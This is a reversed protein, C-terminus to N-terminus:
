KNIERPIVLGIKRIAPFYHGLGFWSSRSSLLLQSLVFIAATSAARAKNHLKLEAKKAAQEAQWEAFEKQIEEDAYAARIDDFICRAFREIVYDPYETKNVFKKKRGM